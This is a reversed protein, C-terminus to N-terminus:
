ENSNEKGVNENFGICDLQKLIDEELRHSESFQQRLTTKFNDMRRNFEDETIDVYDIKIDFYQGASFSYGKEKIEDFTPTFSFDEVVEKNRFTNVIQQIEETRLKTKQNGNEKITEGLKSADILVPKDVGSKDIFVVSVNTGTNAFINSPMSVVGRLISKEGDVLHKRIKFAIGSKATIFGTPVVIAAKGDEKLSYLLHQFFCLYIEMGKKNKSPINPIGAFFRGKYSDTKLDSHYDSFDLKFPPNSVIYDFKRLSGDENKHFPHKLTNGQIVHTLSHSMSNLILNLMMMTSSKDSIDQTYVTCNQEGIAHALAIVLTGTGASPDYCTVSRVDESPDVLLQAMIAAIAHPTYYEAYNGGGNANYDKILYEFITSFFDYGAEFANEFSFSAVDGILSRCFANKKNTGGSVVDSIPKMISVRTEDENLIYFIDSNESAISELTSDFLEAFKDENQRKALFPILHEKKLIITDLMSDCMEEYDDESMADLAAFFDEANALEPNEKKAEYIFKDNLFKYLFIEVIVVYENGSGALGNETTTKKLDDILAYTQNKIEEINKM